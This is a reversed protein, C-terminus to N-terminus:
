KEVKDSQWQDSMWVLCTGDRAGSAIRTGDLSFVATTVASKHGHLTVLELGTIASWLKISNDASTTIVRQSDPSFAVSLVQKNHSSMVAVEKSTTSDWLAIKNDGGGMIMRSGNLSHTPPITADTLSVQGKIESLALIKHISDRYLEILKNEDPDTSKLVEQQFGHPITLTLFLTGDSSNWFRLVNNQDLTLIMKEDGTLILNKLQKGDHTITFIAKGSTTNWVKILGHIDASLLQNGEHFFHVNSIPYLHGGLLLTQHPRPFHWLLPNQEQEITVFRKEVPSFVVMTLKSAHPTDITMSAGTSTDWLILHSNRTTGILWKGDASYSLSEVVERRSHLTLLEGGNEMNWLRTVGDNGSTSFRKEDPSVVMGLVGGAHGTINRTEYVGIEEKPYAVQINASASEIIPGKPFPKKRQDFPTEKDFNILWDQNLETQSITLDMSLLASTPQWFRIAGDSGATIFLHYDALSELCTVKSSHASFRYISTGTQANWIEASGDSYGSFGFEGERSIFISEVGPTMARITVLEAGFAADWLKVSGNVMGLMVKHGDGLFRIYAIQGGCDPLSFLEEGSKVNWLSLCHGWGGIVIKEGDPSFDACTAGPIKGSLELATPRCLYQYRGWEWNRLEPPCDTLLRKAEIIDGEKIKNDILLLKAVYQAEENQRLADSALAKARLAAFTQEAMLSRAEDAAIEAVEAKKRQQSESKQAAIAKEKELEARQREMEAIRRQEAEAQQAKIAKEKESIAVHEAIISREKEMEAQKRQLVEALRLDDALTKAEVAKQKEDSIWFFAVTLTIIIAVALIRALQLIFRQRKQQKLIKHQFLDIEMILAIHDQHDTQLLSRALDLDRKQFATKAYALRAEMEGRRAAHNGEWLLLAERFGFLAQQFDDYRLSHRATDLDHRARMARNISEIHAHYERIEEQLAKVSPYRAEVQTQMCKMAIQMLAEHNEATNADPYQIENRIASQLLESITAGKHPPKGTICEFIIAGLLYIDSGIGIRATEGQAMEPPMYAPTGGIGGTLALNEAKGNDSLSVAMGWDMVLVEGYDGLMVNEAKIDRHIVGRSHAYAIADAVRMLIDLNESTTKKSMVTKWPVGQVHKMAYFLGGYEDMGLDYIPVINPHDLDGTVAAESYFKARVKESGALEPKLMKIAITRDISTQKAEYIVGMGGQGIIKKLAFDAQGINAGPSTQLKRTNVSHAILSTTELIMKDRGAKFISDSAILEAWPDPADDPMIYTSNAEALSGHCSLCQGDAIASETLEVQCFPCITTPM